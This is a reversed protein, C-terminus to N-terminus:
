LRERARKMSLLTQECLSFCFLINFFLLHCEIYTMYTPLLIGGIFIKM